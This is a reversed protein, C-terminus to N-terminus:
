ADCHVLTAEAPPLHPIQLTRGPFATRRPGAPQPFKIGPGNCFFRGANSSSSGHSRAIAEEEPNRNARSQHQRGRGRETAVRVHMGLKNANILGTEARARHSPRRHIQTQSGIARCGDRFVGPIARGRQKPMPDIGTILNQNGEIRSIALTRLGGHRKLGAVVSELGNRPVMGGPAFLIWWGHFLASGLDFLM